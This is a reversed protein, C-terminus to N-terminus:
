RVPRIVAPLEELHRVKVAIPPMWRVECARLDAPVGKRPGSLITHRHARRLHPLVTAGTGTAPSTGCTAQAARLAAGIRVRLDWRVLAAAPFLRVGKRRTRVPVPMSPRAAVGGRSMEAGQSCAYLLLSLIPQVIARLQVVLPDDPANGLSQQLSTLLSEGSLPVAVTLMSDEIRTWVGPMERGVFWLMQLAPHVGDNATTM